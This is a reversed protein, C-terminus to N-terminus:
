NSYSFNTNLNSQIGGYGMGYKDQYRQAGGVLSSQRQNAAQAQINAGTNTLSQLFGLQSNRATNNANLANIQQGLLATQNNKAAQAATVDTSYKNLLSAAYANAANAGQGALNYLNQQAAGLGQAAIGQGYSQLAKLISGSGLMGKAAANSNIQRNGQEMQFQTAPNNLYRDYIQQSTYADSGLGALRAAEASALAGTNMYPQYGSLDVNGANYGGTNILNNSTNMINSYDNQNNNDLYLGLGKSIADQLSGSIANIDAVNQANANQIQQLGAGTAGSIDSSYLQNTAKVPM